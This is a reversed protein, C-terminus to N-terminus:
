VAKLTEEGRRNVIFCTSGINRNEDEKHFINVKNSITNASSKNVGIVNKFHIQFSSSYPSVCHQFEPMSEMPM